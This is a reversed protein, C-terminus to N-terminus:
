ALKQRAEALAARYAEPDEEYVGLDQADRTLEDLGERRESRRTAQFTLVDALRIRRHRNPMEYPISGEDLLNVLTPRSVGLVDAAQQTTLRMAQPAVTVAQGHYMADVVTRLAQTLEDPLTVAEGSEAELRLPASGSALLRGIRALAESDRPPLVTETTDSTM